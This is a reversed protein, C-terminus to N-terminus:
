SCTSEQIDSLMEIATLPYMSDVWAMTDVEIFFQINDAKEQVGTV